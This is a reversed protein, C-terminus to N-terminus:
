ALTGLQADTTTPQKTLIPRGGRLEIKKDKRLDALLGVIEQVEHPFGRLLWNLAEEELNMEPDRSRALITKSQRISSSGAM